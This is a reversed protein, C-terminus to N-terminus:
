PSPKKPGKEMVSFLKKYMINNFDREYEEDTGMPFQKQWAERASKYGLTDDTEQLKYRPIQNTRGFWGPVAVSKIVAPGVTDIIEQESPPRNHTQRWASVASYLAGAYSNWEDKNQTSRDLIGLSSLEGRHSNRMISLAKNFAANDQPPQGKLMNTRHQELQRMQALSINLKGFDMDLFKDHDTTSLMLTNNYVEDNAEKFTKDIVSQRYAEVSFRKDQRQLGDLIERAEPITRLEQETHIDKDIMLNRLNQLSTQEDLKTIQEHQINRLRLANTVHTKLAANGDFKDDILKNAETIQQEVSKLRKGTNPDFAESFAKDAINASRVAQNQGIVKAEALSVDPGYFNDKYKEYFESGKVPDNRTITNLQNLTVQSVAKRTLDQGYPDDSAHGKLIAEQGAAIAAAKVSQDFNAPDYNGITVQRSAVNVGSKANDIQYQKFQDGAHLAGSVSIRAAQGRSESNYLRLAAANLGQGHLARLNEINKQYEPLGKQADNGMVSRFRADEQGASEIFKMMAQDAAARNDLDQLAMARQFLEGGVKDLDGGLSRVADAINTGFAASPVSPHLEPTGPATPAVDPYPKYPVEPM